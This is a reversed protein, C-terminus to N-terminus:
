ITHLLTKFYLTNLLIIYVHIDYLELKKQEKWKYM